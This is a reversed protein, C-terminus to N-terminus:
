KPSRPHRSARIELTRFDRTNGRLEVYGGEAAQVIRWRVLEDSVYFVTMIEGCIKRASQWDNGVREVVQADLEQFDASELSNASWRRWLANQEKLIEWERALQNCRSVSIPEVSALKAALDEPSFTAVSFQGNSSVLGNSSAGLDATSLSVESLRQPTHRFSNALRRLQLQDGVCPAHWIVITANTLALCAILDSDHRERCFLSALFDDPDFTFDTRSSLESARDRLPGVSLDDWFMLVLADQKREGLARTLCGAAPYNPAIHITTMTVKGSILLKFLHCLENCVIQCGFINSLEVSAYNSCAPAAGASDTEWELGRIQV